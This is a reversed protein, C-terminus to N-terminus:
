TPVSDNEKKEKEAADNADVPNKRIASVSFRKDSPIIFLVILGGQLVIPGGVYPALRARAAELAPDM